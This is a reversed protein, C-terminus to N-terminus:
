SANQRTQYESFYYTTNNYTYSYVPKKEDEYPDRDFLHWEYSGYYHLPMLAPLSGDKISGRQPIRTARWYRIVDPESSQHFGDTNDDRYLTGTYIHDQEVIWCTVCYEQPEFREAVVVPKSYKKKEM